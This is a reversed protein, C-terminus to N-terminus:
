ASLSACSHIIRRLRRSQVITRGDTRVVPGRVPAYRTSTSARSQREPNMERASTASKRTL